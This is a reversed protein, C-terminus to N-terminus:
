VRVNSLGYSEGTALLSAVCVPGGAYKKGYLEMEKDAKKYIGRTLIEGAIGPSFIDKWQQAKKEMYVTSSSFVANKKEDDGYYITAFKPGNESFLYKPKFNHFSNLQVLTPKRNYVGMVFLCLNAKQDEVKVKLEKLTKELKPRTELLYQQLYLSLSALDNKFKSYDLSPFYGSDGIYTALYKGEIFNLKPTVFSMANTTAEYLASDAAMVGFDKTIVASVM